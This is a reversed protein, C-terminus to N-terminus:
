NFSIHFINHNQLNTLNLIKAFNIKKPIGELFTKGNQHLGQFEDHTICILLPSSEEEHRPRSSDQSFQQEHNMWAGNQNWCANITKKRLKHLNIM